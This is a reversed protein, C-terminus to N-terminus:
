IKIYKKDKKELIGDAVMESLLRSLAPRTVGLEEATQSVNSIGEHMIIYDTVRNRLGKIAFTRLKGSLFQARDSILRLFAQLTKPQQQMFTLFSERNIQLLESDCLATVEVPIIENSAFLFAPALICPATLHEVVLERGEANVMRTEVKGQTLLLLSRCPTGAPLMLEGEHYRKLKHPGELLQNMVEEDCSAFLPFQKLIETM